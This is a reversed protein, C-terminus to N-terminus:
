WPMYGNRARSWQESELSKLVTAGVSALFQAAVPHILSCGAALERFRLEGMRDRVRVDEVVLPPLRRFPLRRRQLLAVLGRQRRGVGVPVATAYGVLQCFFRTDASARDGLGDLDTLLADGFDVLRVCHSRM